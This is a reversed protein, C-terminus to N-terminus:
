SLMKNMQGRRWAWPTCSAILFHVQFLSVHNSIAHALEFARSSEPSEGSKPRILPEIGALANKIFMALKVKRGLHSGSSSHKLGVSSSARFIQGSGM